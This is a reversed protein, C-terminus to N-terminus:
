ALKRLLGKLWRAAGETPDDCSFTVVEINFDIFLANTEAATKEKDPMLAYHIPTKGHYATYLFGLLLKLDLDDLSAGLFLIKKTTFVTQLFSQYGQQRYVLERYDKETLVISDPETKADGHAKLLFLEGRHLCSALQGVQKYTLPSLYRTGKYFGSYARELLNDYNTTVFLRAPLQAILHHLLSPKVSDDAFRRSVYEDFRKGLDRRLLSALTLYKSKDRVLLRYDAIANKSIGPVRKAERILEDLFGKWSPLGAARSIGAGVFVGCNGQKLSDILDEPINM